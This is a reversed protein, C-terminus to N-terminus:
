LPQAEHLIRDRLYPSVGGESVLDVKKGLVDQLDQKMGILDLLSRSPEFTVLFDIDSSETASRRIVSGFVRVRTAGHRRALRLIEERKDRLLEEVATM